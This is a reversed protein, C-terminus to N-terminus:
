HFCHSNSNKCLFLGTDILPPTKKCQFDSTSFVFKFPITWAKCFASISECAWRHELKVLAFVAAPKPCTQRCGKLASNIYSEPWSGHRSLLVLRLTLTESICSYQEQGQKQKVVTLRSIDKYQARSLSSFTKWLHQSILTIESSFVSKWLNHKWKQRQLIIILQWCPYLNQLFLM